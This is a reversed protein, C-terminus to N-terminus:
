TSNSSVIRFRENRSYEHYPLIKKDLCKYYVLPSPDQDIVIYRWIGYHDPEGYKTIDRSSYVPIDYEMRIPTYPIQTISSSSVYSSNSSDIEM